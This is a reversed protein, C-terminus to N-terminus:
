RQRNAAAYLDTLPAKQDKEGAKWAREWSDFQSWFKRGDWSEVSEASADSTQRYGM